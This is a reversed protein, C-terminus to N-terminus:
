PARRVSVFSIEPLARLTDALEDADEEAPVALTYVGTASPGDVIQLGNAWFLPALAATGVGAAARVRLVPGETAVTPTSLTRYPAGAERGTQVSVMLLLVLAAAGAGLPLVMRLDARFLNALNRMAGSLVSPRPPHADPSTAAIRQRVAKLSREMEVDLADLSAVSTALRRQTSVEERCSPDNAIHREVLRMEEEDLTGNVYWPILDWAENRQITERHPNNSAM